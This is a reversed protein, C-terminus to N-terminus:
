TSAFWHNLMSGSRDDNLGQIRLAGRDVLLGCFLIYPIDTVIEATRYFLAALARIIRQKMPSGNRAALSLASPGSM